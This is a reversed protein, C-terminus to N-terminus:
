IPEINADGINTQLHHPEVARCRPGLRYSGYVQLRGQGTSGYSVVSQDATQGWGHSIRGLTSALGPACSQIPEKDADGVAHTVSCLRHSVRQFRGSSSKSPAHCMRLAHRSAPSPAYRQALTSGRARTPGPSPAISPKFSRPAQETPHRRVMISKTNLSVVERQPRHM